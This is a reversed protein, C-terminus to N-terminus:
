PICNGCHGCPGGTKEGFYQLLFNRLCGDWRCYRWMADLLRLGHEPHSQSRLLRANIARDEESYFLLCRAEEGDRGARGAEQYYEELSAPMNYHLVFSVDGRDIGMGLASTAAVVDIDGAAFRRGTDRREAVSLGAHYRAASLGRRRLLDTVHEVARHTACYIIGCRGELREVEDLLARDRNGSQQKALFLNPRDFGHVQVLPHRLALHRIMDQRVHPTATATFAAYRPRALLLDLFVPIQLYGPRFDHGWQSVCHAEDVVVFSPPNRRAFRQFDKNQLREPSTYLFKFQQQGADYLAKHYTHRGMLSDVHVAAIGRARLNAVQDQMLSILPSIVLAYGPLLLAPVQFCISKGGGTPLIALVERGALIARIIEEQGPRFSGYGFWRQLIGAPTQQQKETVNDM